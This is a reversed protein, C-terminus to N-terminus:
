YSDLIIRNNMSMSFKLTMKKGYKKYTHLFIKWYKKETKAFDSQFQTIKRIAIHKLQFLIERYTQYQKNFYM